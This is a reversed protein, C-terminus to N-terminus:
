AAEIGNTCGGKRWGSGWRLSGGKRELVEVLTAIEWMNSITAEELSVSNRTLRQGNM